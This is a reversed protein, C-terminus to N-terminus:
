RVGCEQFTGWADDFRNLWAELEADLACLKNDIVNIEVLPLAILELPLAYLSNGNIVLQELKRLNGMSQPLEKLANISVNLAGLSRLAGIENPLYNIENDTLILKELSCLSGISTPLEIIANDSADLVTLLPLFGISEPLYSLSNSSIYLEKLSKCNGLECPLESLELNKGISLFDLATLNGISPTIITLDLSDLVLSRIRGTSANRLTVQAVALANLGNADLIDRVALSDCSYTQCGSLVNISGLSTTSQAEVPIDHLAFLELSDAQHMGVVACKGAPLRITFHGNTDPYVAHETGVIQVLALTDAGTALTGELTGFSQAILRNLNVSDDLSGISCTVIVGSEKTDHIEISYRGPQSIGITFVGLSDIITDADQKTVSQLGNTSTRARYTEPRVIVVGHNLGKGSPYVVQGVIKAEVDSGNGGALPNQEGQKSCMMWLLAVFFGLYRMGRM